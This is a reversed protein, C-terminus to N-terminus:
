RAFQWWEVVPTDGGEMRLLVVGDRDAHLLRRGPPLALTGPIRQGTGTLITWERIVRGMRRPLRVVPVELHGVWLRGAADTFLDGIPPITEPYTRRAHLRALDAREDERKLAALQAAEIERRRKDTLRELPADLQIRRDVQGAPTRHVLSWTTGDTLWVGDPAVAAYTSPAFWPLDILVGDTPKGDNILRLIWETGTFTARIDRDGARTLGVLRGTNRVPGPRPTGTREPPDDTVALLGGGPLAAMAVVQGDLTASGEFRGRADFWFVRELTRDWVALSGDRAVSLRRPGRLEGPGSGRTGIRGAVRGRADFVLLEAMTGDLVVFTGDPRRIADAVTSLRVAQSGGKAGIVLSPRGALRLAGPQGALGGRPGMLAVYTSRDSVAASLTSPPQADAQAGGAPSLLLVGLAMWARRLARHVPHEPFHPLMM